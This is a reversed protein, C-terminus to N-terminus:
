LESLIQQDEATSLSIALLSDDIVDEYKVSTLSNM